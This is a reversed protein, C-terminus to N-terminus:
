RKENTPRDGATASEAEAQKCFYFAQASRHSGGTAEESSRCKKNKSRM